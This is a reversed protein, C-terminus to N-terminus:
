DHRENKKRIADITKTYLIKNIYKHKLYPDFYGQFHKFVDESRRNDNVIFDEELILQNLFKQKALYSM